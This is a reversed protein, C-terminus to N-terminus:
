STQWIQGGSKITTAYSEAKETQIYDIADQNINAKYNVMEKLFQIIKM